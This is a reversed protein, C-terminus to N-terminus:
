PAGGTWRPSLLYRGYIVAFLLFAASWVAGATIIGYVYYEALYSAALRMAAGLNILLYIIITAFDATLPRGTHGLTARTMVALTMVGAAGATLAHVGASQSVLASNVASLGLLFLAAALWLYGIHLITVLPEASTRWGQWRCLRTLHLLSAIILLASASPHSPAATWAIMSIALAGVAIKDLTRFSADIVPRNTRAFWNRTFSPTVRGGILALLIAIVGLGWRLGFAGTGNNLTDFHWIINGLAFLGMLACVPANRWNKGAIVERWMIASMLALFVGDIVASYLAGPALAMVARGSLWILFLAALRWGLVPLRGTWNPVATLIFGAVIAALYGYLMEHAHWGVAGLRNEFSIVGGLALGTLIPLSAAVLAGGLFFPRFGFSFFAPGQYGRMQAATSSM